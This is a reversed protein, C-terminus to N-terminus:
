FQYVLGATNQSVGIGLSALHYKQNFLNVAMQLNQQGKFSLYGGSITTALGGGALAWGLGKHDDSSINHIGIVMVITGIFGVIQGSIKNSQHKKYFSVLEGDNTRYFLEKFQKSGTFVTDHFIINNPKPMILYNMGKPNLKQQANVSVSILSLLLVSFYITKKM